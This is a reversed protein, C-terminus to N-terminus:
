TSPLICEKTLTPYFLHSRQLYYSSSLLARNPYLRTGKRVPTYLITVVFKESFGITNQLNHQQVLAQVQDKNKRICSFYNRSSDSLAEMHNKGSPATIMRTNSLDSDKLIVLSKSYVKWYKLKQM